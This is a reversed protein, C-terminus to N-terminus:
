RRISGSEQRSRRASSAMPQAYALLGVMRPAPIRLTPSLPFAAVVLGFTSSSPRAIGRFRALLAPLSPKRGVGGLTELATPLSPVFQACGEREALGPPPLADFGTEPGTPLAGPGRTRCINGVLCGRIQARIWPQKAPMRHPRLIHALIDQLIDELINWSIGPYEASYGGCKV